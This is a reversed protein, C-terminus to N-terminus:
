DLVRPMTELVDLYEPFSQWGWKIGEALAAGPIDEVGEMLGILWQHRDPRAPAFGVGCNGMVVTTGGHWSSPTMYPDWTAQGDYHTHIDVWGPAVVKGRADLERRGPGTTGVAAIREGDIAVDGERPPNGTGDVLLGGRVVLDHMDM